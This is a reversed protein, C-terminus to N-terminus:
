DPKQFLDDILILRRISLGRLFKRKLCSVTGRVRSALCKSKSSTVTSRWGGIFLIASGAPSFAFVGGSVSELCGTSAFSRKRASGSNATRRASINSLFSATPTNFISKRVQCFTKRQQVQSPRSSSIASRIAKSSAGCPVTAFLANGM